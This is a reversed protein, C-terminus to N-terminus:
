QLLIIHRMDVVDRCRWRWQVCLCPLTSHLMHGEGADAAAEDVHEGYRLFLCDGCVVGQVLCLPLMNLMSSCPFFSCPQLRPSFLQASARVNLLCLLLDVLLAESVFPLCMGPRLSLYSVQHLSRDCARRM